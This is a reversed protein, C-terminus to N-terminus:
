RRAILKIKSLVFQDVPTKVWSENSVKPLQPSVVPAFAWHRKTQFSPDPGNGVSKPWTAGNQVWTRFDAVVNAPLPDDPPMQLDENTPDIALLLLSEELKGPVVAPGIEGGKLLADRSDVRFGSSAKESGHCKFCKEILVPRIRTEFFHEDAVALTTSAAMIAAALLGISNPRNQLPM